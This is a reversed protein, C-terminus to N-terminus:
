KILSCSACFDSLTNKSHYVISYLLAYVYMVVSASIFVFAGVTILGVHWVTFPQAVEDAEEYVIDALTV